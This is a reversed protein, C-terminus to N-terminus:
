RYVERLLRWLRDGVYHLNKVVKGKKINKLEASSTLAIGIAIVKQYMEDVIAVPDGTEFAGETRVVGPAMVDAGNAIHPIAGRDVVIKPLDESCVHMATITPILTNENLKILVPRGDISYIEHGKDTVMYEVNVRKSSIALSAYLKPYLKSLMHLISKTERGRLPHRHKVKL